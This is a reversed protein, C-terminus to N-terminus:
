RTAQGVEQPTRLADGENEPTLLLLLLTFPSQSNGSTLIHVYLFGQVPRFLGQRNWSTSAGLIFLVVRLVPRLFYEQYEHSNSASDVWPWLAVPLIIDILFELAGVHISDAAGRSRSCYGLWSRWRTGGFYHRSVDLQHIL